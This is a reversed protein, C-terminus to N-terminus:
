EEKWEIFVSNLNKGSIDNNYGRFEVTAPHTVTAKCKAVGAENTFQVTDFFHWGTNELNFQCWVPIGFKKIDKGNSDIAKVMFEIEEGVQVESFSTRTQLKAVDASENLLTLVEQTKVIMSSMEARTVGKNPDFQDENSYNFINAAYSFDAFTAFWDEDSIDKFESSGGLIKPKAALLIIKLAEGRKAVQGPRFYGDHPYGHVIGLETGRAVYPTYWQGEPVDPYNAPVQPQDMLNFSELAFKTVEARTAGVNPNFKSKCKVVGQHLLETIDEKSGHNKTDVFCETVTPTNTTDKTGPKKFEKRVVKKGSKEGYGIVYIGTKSITFVMENKEPDFTKKSEVLEIKQTEKNYTYVHLKSTDYNDDYLKISLRVEEGTYCAEDDTNTSLDVARIIKQGSPTNKIPLKSLAVSKPVNLIKNFPKKDSCFQAQTGKKYQVLHHTYYNEHKINQCIDGESEELSLPSYLTQTNTKSSPCKLIFPNSFTPQPRGGGGGGGGGGGSSQIVAAAASVVINFEDSVSSYPDSATLTITITGVDNGTPTGSFTKTASDFSLWTPLAAGGSLTATYTLTDNETDAFTDEAFQLNFAQHEKASQDPLPNSVTPTQNRILMEFTDTVTGGNGDDATILINITGLDTDAPTGAFTRTPGNFNLWTPLASGDALTATYSLTDGDTDNFANADFQFDYAQNQIATQDPIANALTPTTNGAAAASIVINFDDNVTGGNGDNATVRVSITGVDSNAPTGSFTRTATDFSLWAPLATGGSLTSTYTLTDTADADNFVNDAFQFSFATSETATQDAIPNAVTPSNNGAGGGAASVVISFDDNVTGGNGDNATVRVSITGVDSNAPTGSFTRTATDFSLWTPLASGDSLTSTYTLTDTADDDAFTNDAFQFSFASSETATQDAIPSSVTPENNGGAGGGAASTVIDFDDTITGGNGDSATVRITITGIDTDTPTGSFTRTAADFSIWTPLASGDSLTATFSLTDSADVDAFTNDAFQFSFASNETATQDAIANALTPDDNTNSITLTFDDTVTGGNGDSATVRVTITGVDANAPTGSFTRTAADFSLWAPLASGDSLTSTYTLTDTPDADTFTDAAFQFSFAADETATQDNIASNVVPVNNGVVIASIVIDFDDNVTGGNGDNATVRVTITGIDSNAPTGSFTRTATDFSLWAPLASGDSLTLTYTLTDTTDVDTFTDSAFQLNFATGETATQNAIASNVIPTDNIAAITVTMDAVASLDTGDFSRFSFVLTGNFNQAPVLQLNGIDASAVFDNAVVNSGSVQLAGNGNTLSTIRIGAFTDSDTDSYGSSFDAATFTKTEDENGSATVDTQSPATNGQVPASNVTINFEDSVTGGNGDNATLKVTFTAIDSSSPTGSFTRTGSDFSLWAPLASDDSQTASYTLTDGPDTDNFTNDAFQFSFATNETAIRDAISNAVTPQNNVDQITVTMDAVASLSQADSSRFSFILTGVFGQIPTLTLDGIETVHVFDNASIPNGSAQLTGNGNTLSTIRIGNFADGDVDNYGSSFDSSAFTKTQNETGTSTMNTQTPADNAAAFTVTMDAVASLATGDLARFSFIVSGNFNQIPTIQLNPIQAVTVLDNSSVPNGSVSLTANGNTLSTVRIGTLADGDVDSYGSNFDNVTFSYTSDETGSVSVNNQTPPAAYSSQIPTYAGLIFISTLLAISKKIFTNKM